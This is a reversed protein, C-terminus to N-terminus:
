YIEVVQHKALMKGAEAVKKGCQDWCMVMASKTMHVAPEHYDYPKVYVIWENNVDLLPLEMKRIRGPKLPYYGCLYHYSSEVLAPPRVGCVICCLLTELSISLNKRHMHNLGIGPTRANTEIFIVDGSQTMFFETHLIGNEVGLTKQVKISADLIKKYQNQDRINLSFIPEHRSVMLHNPFSYQRASAFLIEGEFVVLESHYLEAHIYNQAIYNVLNEKKNSLFQQYESENKVHYTEYSGAKNIPKIFIEDAGLAHQLSYFHADDFLMTSQPCQVFGDLKDYMFNKHSLLMAKALNMGQIGLKERILALDVFFDESFCVIYDPRVRECVAYLEAYDFSSVFVGEDLSTTKSETKYVFVAEIGLSCLLATDVLEYSEASDVCLLKIMM